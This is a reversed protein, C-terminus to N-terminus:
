RDVRGTALARRVRDSFPGHPYRSLYPRALRKAEDVRGLKVLALLLLQQREQTFMSGEFEAEGQRALNLARAADTFLVRQTMALMAMERELRAEDVVPKPEPEPERAEAEEQEEQEEQPQAVPRPAPTSVVKATPASARESKAGPEIKATREIAATSEAKLPLAPATTEGRHAIEVPEVGDPSPAGTATRARRPARSPEAAEARHRPRGEIVVPEVLTTSPAPEPAQEVAAPAAASSVAAPAAPAEASRIMVVASIAAVSIVPLGIWLWLSGSAAGSGAATAGAQLSEAWQPLVAGAEIESLHRRLGQEFDYGSVSASRGAELLERVQPSEQPDDVMPMLRKTM